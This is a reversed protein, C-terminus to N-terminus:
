NVLVRAKGSKRNYTRTSCACSVRYVDSEPSNDGHVKSDLGLAECKYCRLTLGTQALLDDLYSLMEVLKPNLQTETTKRVPQGNPGLIM